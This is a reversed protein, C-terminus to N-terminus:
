TRGWRQFAKPFSVRPAKAGIEVWVGERGTEPVKIMNEAQQSGSRFRWLRPNELFPGSGTKHV